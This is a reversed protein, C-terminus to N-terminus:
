YANDQSKKEAIILLGNGDTKITWYDVMMLVLQFPIITCCFIILIFVSFLIPFRKIVILMMSYIEFAIAGCPGYTYQNVKIKLGSNVVKQMIESSSYRHMLFEDHYKYYYDSLYKKEWEDSWPLYRKYTIPIYLILIGNDELSNFLNSLADEDNQIFQLTSNCLIIDYKRDEKMQTIDSKQFSVNHLNMSEAVCKGLAINEEYFDIGRAIANRNRKAIYIFYDGMGCGADLFQFDRRFTKVIIRLARKVYWNRLTM